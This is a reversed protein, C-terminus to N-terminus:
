SNASSPEAMERLLAQPREEDGGVNVAGGGDILQLSQACRDIDGDMMADFAVKWRGNARSSEFAGLAVAM